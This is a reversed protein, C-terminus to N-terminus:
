GALISLAAHKVGSRRGYKWPSRERWRKLRRKVRFFLDFVPLLVLVSLLSPASQESAFEDIKVRRRSVEGSENEKGARYVNGRNGRGKKLLCKNM